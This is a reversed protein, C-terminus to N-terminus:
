RKPFWFEMTGRPLSGFRGDLSALRIVGESLNLATTTVSDLQEADSEQDGHYYRIEYSSPATAVLEIGPARYGSEILARQLRRADERDGESNIQIFVTYERARESEAASVLPEVSLVAAAVAEYRAAEAREVIQEQDLGGAEASQAAANQSKAICEQRRYSVVEGIGNTVNEAFLVNFLQVTRSNAEWDCTIITEHETIFLEVGKFDFEKDARIATAGRDVLATWLGIGQFAVASVGGLMTVVVAAGALSLRQRSKLEKERQRIELRKAELEAQKLEDEIAM